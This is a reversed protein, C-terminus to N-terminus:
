LPVLVTNTIPAHIERVANTGRPVSPVTVHVDFGIGSTGCGTLLQSLSLILSATIVVFLGRRSRRPQMTSTQAAIRHLLMTQYSLIVVIPTTEFNTV